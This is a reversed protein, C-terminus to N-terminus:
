SRAARLLLIGLLAEDARSSGNRYGADTLACLVAVAPSDPAPVPLASTLHVLCDTYDGTSFAAIAADIAHDLIAVGPTISSSDHDGSGSRLRRRIETLLRNAAEDRALDNLGLYPYFAGEPLGIDAVAELAQKYALGNMQERHVVPLLAALQEEAPHGAARLIRGLAVAEQAAVASDTENALRQGLTEHAEPLAAVLPALHTLARAAALRVGRDVEQSLLYFIRPLVAEAESQGYEPGIAAIAALAAESSTPRTPDLARTLLPAAAPDALRALAKLSAVRVTADPGIAARMLAPTAERDGIVALAQAALEGIGAAPDFLKESLAPVARSDRIAGLAQAARERVEFSVDDLATVLEEVALPSRLDALQEVAERREGEGAPRTLRRLRLFSSLPRASFLQELVYRPSRSEPEHIPGLLFLTGIRVLATLLFMVKYNNIVFPGANLTFSALAEMLLGGIIPSVFGVLGTLASFVAVYTARADAPALGLLLNFQALGHGGWFGGSFANIFIIIAVNWWLAGPATFVWLLPAVITGAASLALVPKSGYKDSLYGFLPTAALGALAAVAGLLQVALYPMNLANRSVQWAIFFQGALTQGCVTLGAFYLFRRFNASALPASLSRFPNVPPGDRRQAPPEPQRLILLFAGIAAVCAVAFLVAFGVRPPFREYKIAQDLFAGAPLPVIMTVLGALMNRRGFYQGRSGAPVLDSMWSTWAPVTITLLASSLTYLTLFAPLQLPRPLVFPILLIPVWLLRGAVAAGGCFTRREGRREVYVSAPLQLLNVAAPLAALLGLAFPSAGLQLAFGTQFAGTTLVMFITAWVGEWTAIRLGRLVDLRTLAPRTENSAM